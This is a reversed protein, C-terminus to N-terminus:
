TRLFQWYECSCLIIWNNNAKRLEKIRYGWPWLLGIDKSWGYDSMWLDSKGQLCLLSRLLNLDESESNPSFMWTIQFQSHDQMQSLQWLWRWRTLAKWTFIFYKGQNNQSLLGLWQFKITTNCKYDNVSATGERTSITSFNTAVLLHRQSLGKEWICSWM